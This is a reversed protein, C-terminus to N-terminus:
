RGWDPTDNGSPLDYFHHGDPSYGSSYKLSNNPKMVLCLALIIMIAVIIYLIYKKM